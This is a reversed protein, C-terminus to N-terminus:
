ADDFYRRPTNETIYKTAELICQRIVKEMPTNSYSSLGGGMGGSGGIAGLAGGLAVDQAEASINTAALIETTQSDIIRIDMAMSSKKMSGSVAGWAAAADGLLGGGGGGVSGGGTNPDWGTIAAVVLIEAGTIDGRKAAPEEDVQGSAGLQQEDQVAQLQSRELVRYRKSQVLATTLMDELGRMRGRKEESITVGNTSTGPLGSITVTSGGEGGAKWEFGAVAIRAKPGDYPGLEDEVTMGREAEAGSSSSTLGSAAQCGALVLAATGTLLLQLSRNM